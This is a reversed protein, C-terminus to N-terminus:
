SVVKIKKKNKPNANFALEAIRKYDEGNTKLNSFDLDSFTNRITLMEFSRRETNSDHSSWFFNTPMDGYKKSVLKWVRPAERLDYGADAMYQLGVRDAQNEMTRGYGNVMAVNVLDLVNSIAYYGLGAAFISAIAIARRRKKNHQLRRYTHEQTAHAIEHGIVAALQAENELIKFVDDHIIVVGNPYAAANFGKQMIVTFRFPIKNPDGDPLNRQYAPILSQGIRNVYDQVEQNPLVKYKTGGVKLEGPKGEVFNGPKEKIKLQKWLNKEGRELENRVFTVKSTLVTGDAQEKGEYTMFVGPGIDALSTLPGAGLAEEAASSEDDDDPKPPPQNDAAQAASGQTGAPTQGSTEAEADDAEDSDEKEVKTEAPKAEEPKEKAQEKEKARLAQQQEKALKESEKRETKNLKFFVQTEPEIRIRRGDAIVIGRWKNGEVKALESPKRELVTTVNFTRFQKLDIKLKKAKLERTEENYLGRLEILTGVRLDEPKFLNGATQNEFELQVSEDRTIRYDEVEFSTPSTMATIYGRIKIEKVKPSLPSPIIAQCLLALSLALTLLRQLPKM